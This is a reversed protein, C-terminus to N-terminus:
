VRHLSGFRGCHIAGLEWTLAAGLHTCRDVLNPSARHLLQKVRKQM